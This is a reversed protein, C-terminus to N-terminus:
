CRDCGHERPIPRREGALLLSQSPDLRSARLAPVVGFVVGSVLSILLGFALVNVDLRMEDLRPVTPPVLTRVLPHAIAAVLVGAAGSIAALCSSETLLQRVLRSRGAGLATRVALEAHRRTGRALMLNAVNACAILFVMTVAGLVLLLSRHVHPEITTDSLRDIRVGWGTNTAPFEQEVAASVAGM